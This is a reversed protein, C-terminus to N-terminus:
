AVRQAAPRGGAPVAHHDSRPRCARTRGAGPRVKGPPTGAGFSLGHIGHKNLLPLSARSWGPVDRQSVSTPRPLGLEQLCRAM